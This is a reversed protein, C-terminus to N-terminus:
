KKKRRFDGRKWAEFFEGWALPNLINNPRVQGYYVADNAQQRQYASQFESGSKPVTYALARLTLANTNQRAIEFRDSAINWNRFAYDFEERTPLPRIITEPLYFTDQTMLQILSYFNGEVDKPVVFEKPRYGLASFELTDGKYVVISFVGQGGSEVGRNKNKVFVVVGAVARLSDATM